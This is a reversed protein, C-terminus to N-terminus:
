PTHTCAVMSFFILRPERPAPDPATHADEGGGDGRGGERGGEWAGSGAPWWASSARCPAAGCCPASCAASAAAAGRGAAAAAAAAPRSRFRASRAGSKARGQPEFSTASPARQAPSAGGSEETSFKLTFLNFNM